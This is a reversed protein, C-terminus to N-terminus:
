RSMLLKKPFMQAVKEVKTNGLKASKRSKPFMKFSNTDVKDVKSKRAVKYFRCSQRSQASKRAVKSKQSKGSKTSKGAVKEGQRCRHRAPRTHPIGPASSRYFLAINWARKAKQYENLLVGYWLRAGCEDFCKFLKNKNQYVLWAGGRKKLKPKKM